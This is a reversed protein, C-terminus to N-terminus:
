VSEMILEVIAKMHAQMTVDKIVILRALITVEGSMGQLRALLIIPPLLSLFMDEVLVM